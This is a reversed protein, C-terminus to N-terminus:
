GLRPRWWHVGLVIGAAFLGFALIQIARGAVGSVGTSIQFTTFALWFAGSWVVVLFQERSAGGRLYRYASVALVAVWGATLVAGLTFASLGFLVANSM